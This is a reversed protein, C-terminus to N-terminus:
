PGKKADILACEGLLQRLSFYSPWAARADYVGGCWCMTGRVPDVGVTQGPLDHNTTERRGGTFLVPVPMRFWKSGNLVEPLQLADIVRM